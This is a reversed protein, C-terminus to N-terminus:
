WFRGAPIWGNFAMGRLLTQIGLVIILLAATRYLFLRFHPKLRTVLFGFSMMAPITGAGFIAMILLGSVFDGSAAAHIFVPYLLGCPLFGLLLGLLFTGLVNEFALVRHLLSRFWSTRTIGAEEFKGRKGLVGALNLGMLIMLLGAILLVGGPIGRHEGIYAAFSGLYGVTGGLISYTTIRGLNYFIHYPLSPEAVPKRLSYMGVFGGCMGICHMSGLLGILFIEVYTQM